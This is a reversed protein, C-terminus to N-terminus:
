EGDKLWDEISKRRAELTQGRTQKSLKVKAHRRNYDDKKQSLRAQKARYRALYHDARFEPESAGSPVMDICDVPCVPVCLECGNCEDSIIRHLMKHAGLIADVPCSDICKKCGICEDLRVKAVMAEPQAKAVKVELHGVDQRMLKGIDRLVKVGGPRCKDIADGDLIAQAYPLCGQHGCAQCQTQPM